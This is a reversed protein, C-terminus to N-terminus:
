SNDRKLEAQVTTTMYHIDMADNGHMDLCKDMFDSRCMFCIEFYAFLITDRITTFKPVMTATHMLMIPINILTRFTPLTRFISTDM